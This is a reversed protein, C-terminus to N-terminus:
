TDRKETCSNYNQKNKTFPILKFSHTVFVTIGYDM